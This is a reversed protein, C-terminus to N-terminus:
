ETRDPPANNGGFLKMWHVAAEVSMRLTAPKLHPYMEMLQGAVYDFRQDAPLEGTLWLQEAAMVLNKADEVVAQYGTLREVISIDNKRNFSIFAVLLAVAAIIMSALDFQM